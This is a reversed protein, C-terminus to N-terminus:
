TATARPSRKYASVSSDGEIWFRWSVDHALRVGVRPGTSVAGSGVGPSLRVVGSSLLDAGNQERGLGLAQALNAPGRALSRDTVREGRRQRALQVGEIVQGARLLVASARGDPGTVVNCCWHMGYTFYCYLFGAPGFMVGNRPSRGRYAHSAPDSDGAYAEVETLAVTVTGADSKHSITWGLLTPAVAYSEGSLLSRADNVQDSAEAV